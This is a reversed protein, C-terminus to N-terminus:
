FKLGKERAAEALAQVRGHYLFGNRDFVCAVFGASLAKEAIETGVIKAQEIKNIKQANDNKLSSASLLTKGTVDDVLQAYMQRNSRFISLRPKQESGSINKRIRKKIRIRRELKTLAM